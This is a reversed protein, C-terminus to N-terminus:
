EAVRFHAMEVDFVAMLEGDDFRELGSIEIRPAGGRCAPCAPEGCTWFDLRPPPTFDPVPDYYPPGMYSPLEPDYGAYPPPDAGPRETPAFSPARPSVAINWHWPVTTTLISRVRESVKALSTPWRWTHIREQPSRTAPHRRAAFQTAINRRNAPFLLDVIARRWGTGLFSGGDPKTIRISHRDPGPALLYPPQLATPSHCPPMSYRPSTYSRAPNGM